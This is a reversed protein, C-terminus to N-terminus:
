HVQGIGPQYSIRQLAIGEEMFKGLGSNFEEQHTTERIVLNLNKSSRYIINGPLYEKVILKKKHVIDLALYSASYENQRLARGILYRNNLITRLPLNSSSGNELSDDWGCESCVAANGKEAMCGMCVSSFGMMKEM